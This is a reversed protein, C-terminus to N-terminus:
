ASVKQTNKIRDLLSLANSLTKTSSEIVSTLRDVEEARSIAKADYGIELAFWIFPANYGEDRAMKFILMTQSIDLKEARSPNLCDLLYRSANDIGKDPWILAGIKKAGGLAQVAAKLADEASEYFPMEAQM